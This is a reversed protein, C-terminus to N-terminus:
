WRCSGSCRGRCHNPCGTGPTPSSYVRYRLQDSTTDTDTAPEWALRVYTGGATAASTLGGFRTRESEIASEIGVIDDGAVDNDGCGCGALLLTFFAFVWVATIAKVTRM